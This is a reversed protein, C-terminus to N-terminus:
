LNKELEAVRNKLEVVLAELETNLITAVALKQRTIELLISLNVTIEDNNNNETM